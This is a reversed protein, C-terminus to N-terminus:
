KKYELYVKAISNHIGLTVKAKFNNPLKNLKTPILEVDVLGYTELDREAVVKGDIEVTFLPYSWFVDKEFPEFDM